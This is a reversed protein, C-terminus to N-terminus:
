ALEKELSLQSIVHSQIVMGAGLVVGLEGLESHNLEFSHDLPTWIMKECAKMIKNRLYASEDVLSGTLIVTDPNNVCVSNNVTMASYTVVREIINVAWREDNSAAAIIDSLSDVHVYKSAEEIM